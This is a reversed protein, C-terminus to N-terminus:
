SDQKEEPGEDDPTSFPIITEATREPDGKKLPDYPKEPQVDPKDDQDENQMFYILEESM